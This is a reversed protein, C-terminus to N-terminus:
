FFAQEPHSHGPQTKSPEPWEQGRERPHRFNGRQQVQQVEGGQRISKFFPLAENSITVQRVAKCREPDPETGKRQM